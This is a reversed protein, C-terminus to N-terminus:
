EFFAFASPFFIVIIEESLNSRDGSFKEKLYKEMKTSYNRSRQSIFSSGFNIQLVGGKEALKSLMEDDVNREFGPTFHRLSSHSAIVPVESIEVAQYFAEDSVHSVDIIIGVKNM